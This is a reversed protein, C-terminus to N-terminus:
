RFFGSCGVGVRGVGFQQVGFPQVFRQRQVFPSVFVSQRPVFNRQVVVPQFRFQQRQIAQAALIRNIQQQRAVQVAFARRGFGTAKADQPIAFVGAVLLLVCLLPRM